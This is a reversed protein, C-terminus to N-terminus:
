VDALKTGFPSFPPLPDNSKVAVRAYQAPRYVGNAYLGVFVCFVRTRHVDGKM